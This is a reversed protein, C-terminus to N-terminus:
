CTLGEGRARGPVGTTSPGGRARTCLLFRSGSIQALCPSRQSGSGPLRAQILAETGELVRALLTRALSSVTQGRCGGPLFPPLPLIPAAPSLSCSSLTRLASAVQPGPRRPLPAWLAHPSCLPRPSSSIADAADGSWGVRQTPRVLERVGAHGARCFSPGLRRFWAGELAARPVRSTLEPFVDLLAWGGGGPLERNNEKASPAQSDDLSVM